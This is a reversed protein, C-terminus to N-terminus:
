WQVVEEKGQSGVKLGDWVQSSLRWDTATAVTLSRNEKMERAEPAAFTQM